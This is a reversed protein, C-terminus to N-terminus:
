AARHEQDGVLRTREGVRRAERPSRSCNRFTSSSTSPRLAISPGEAQPLSFGMMAEYVSGIQEVDLTRYSLREGQLLLLNKLVQYVVGDSVRPLDARREGVL